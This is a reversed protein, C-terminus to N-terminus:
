ATATIPVRPSLISRPLDNLRSETSRPYRMMLCSVEIRWTSAGGAWVYVTGHGDPLQPCSENTVINRGHCRKPRPLPFICVLRCRPLAEILTHTHAFAVSVKCPTHLVSWTRSIEIGDSCNNSITTTYIAGAASVDIDPLLNKSEASDSFNCFKCVLPRKKLLRNKRDLFPLYWDMKKEGSAAFAKRICDTKPISIEQSVFFYGARQSRPM